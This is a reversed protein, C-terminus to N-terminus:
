ASTVVLEPRSIVLPLRLEGIGGFLAEDMARAVDRELREVTAWLAEASGNTFHRM